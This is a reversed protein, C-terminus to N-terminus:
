ARRYFPAPFHHSRQKEDKKGNEGGCVGNLSSLRNGVEVGEREGQGKLVM